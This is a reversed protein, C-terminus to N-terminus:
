FLKPEEFMLKDSEDVLILSNNKPIFSLGVYYQVKDKYETVHWL